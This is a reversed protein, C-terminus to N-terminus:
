RRSLLQQFAVKPAAQKDRSFSQMSPQINSLSAGHRKSDGVSHSNSTLYSNIKNRSESFTRVNMMQHLVREYEKRAMQSKGKESPQHMKAWVMQKRMKIMNAEAKRQQRLSEQQQKLGGKKTFTNRCSRNLQFLSPQPQLGAPEERHRASDLSDEPTFQTQVLAEHSPRLGEAQLQAQKDPQLPAQALEVLSKPATTLVDLASHNLSLGSNAARTRSLVRQSPRRRGQDDASLNNRKLATSLDTFTHEEALEPRGGETTSYRNDVIKVEDNAAQVSISKHIIENSFKDSDAVYTTWQAERRMKQPIRQFGHGRQASEMQLARQINKSASEFSSSPMLAKLKSTMTRTRAQLGGSTNSGTPQFQQQSEQNPYEQPLNPNGEPYNSSAAATRHDRTQQSSSNRFTSSTAQDNAHM